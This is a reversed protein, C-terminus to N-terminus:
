DLAVIGYVTSACLLLLLLSGYLKWSIISEKSMLTRIVLYSSLYLFLLVSQPLTITLFIWYPKALERM